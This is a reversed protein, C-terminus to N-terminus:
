KKIANILIIVGSSIWWVKFVALVAPYINGFYRAAFLGVCVTLILAIRIYYLAILWKLRSSSRYKLCFLVGAKELLSYERLTKKRRTKSFGEFAANYVWMRVILLEIFGWVLMAFIIIIIEWLKYDPM